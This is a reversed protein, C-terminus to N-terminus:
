GKTRWSGADVPRAGYQMLLGNREDKLTYTPKNWQSVERALAETRGGQEAYAILVEDAIAAVFRNRRHALDATARRQKEDFPSLLLLRGDVIPHQWEAPIRLRQLSRALCVVVPQAGRLLLRLCEQEMPSHFGSIVTIGADRLVRDLDYTNM